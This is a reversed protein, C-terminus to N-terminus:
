WRRASRPWRRGFATALSVGFLQFSGALSYLGLPGYFYRIDHYPVAGDAVQEATTLEAGADLAPNGWKKWTLVTLLLLGLALAGLALLDPRRGERGEELRPDDVAAAPHELTASPAM